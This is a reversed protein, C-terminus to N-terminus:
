ILEYNEQFFANTCVIAEGNEGVTVWDGIKVIVNCVGNHIILEGDEIYSKPVQSLIDNNFGDYQEAFAKEAKQIVRQM